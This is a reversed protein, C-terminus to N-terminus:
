IRSALLLSFQWAVPLRKEAISREMFFEGGEGNEAADTTCYQRYSSPRRGRSDDDHQSSCTRSKRRSRPGVCVLESTTRRLIFDRSDTMATRNKTADESAMIKIMM